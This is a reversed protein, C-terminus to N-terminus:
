NNGANGQGLLDARVRSIATKNTKVGVDAQVARAFQAVYEQGVDRSLEARAANIAGQNKAADGPTISDLKVIFWGDNKPAPLMRVSNATMSFMLALPPPPGNPNAALQARSTAVVQPKPLATGAGNMAAPLATGGKVAAVIRGALAQAAKVRREATIDREVAARVKALPQPASPIVRGVTFVAFAGDPGAAVMQPGDGEDAQFAGTIVPMVEGSAKYATDDPNAGASTVPPTTQPTLKQDAVVEDFTANSSLSDDIADRVANLADATKQKTLETVIEGRAQDLTKGPVGEIKDLRAVTWGLPGKVPGVIAGASAGFIADALQASTDSALANKDSVTQTSAELGAAAAAAALSTGARVKAALANAGGQDIVVVRSVTRKDRAAFRTGADRYAQAVDQDSPTARAAVRDPTVFAYRVVRREPLTYRRLNREYYSQLDGDSPAPVSRTAATPVFGITGSRKELLLSAYPLVLQDPVQTAGMTPMILQQSITDRAIDARIQADTLKREALIRQYLIPDFKGTPGQLAPISAIQGDVSRKSVAMGQRHGFVEFAAGAVMRELTGELGRQAIFQQMDLTPQQQRFSELENQARSRLDAVSLETKGVTAVDGGLIGGAGSHFGTVDAAAFAFAALGLVAFTIVMGIKSNTLGRLFSLM